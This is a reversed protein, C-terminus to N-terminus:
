KETFEVPCFYLGLTSLTPCAAAGTIIIRVRDTTAPTTRLLRKHGISTAEGIKQWENNIFAEVTFATIRQGLPIYEQLMVVNFTSPKSLTLEVSAATLQDDTAWYTKSNNDLLNKPAFAANGGRVNSASIHAGSAFDTAFTEDLLRRFGRLSQIDNEHIRGRRDPPLNLLLGAGRGISAFYLTVLNEPSRVNDDETAHYFWGPRISVDCDAPVWHTGPRDGSNLRKNDAAGPAFDERNLTAWCTEGAMGRENGVYRIDPGCDSFICADPQLERVIQWTNPWDYYTRRDIKRDEKAGGYYGKGGNAGDLWVEHIPGYGTLLERLQNRYYTIYESRAYDKHNRDWPSLYV